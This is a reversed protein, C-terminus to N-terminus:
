PNELRPLPLDTFPLDYLLKPRTAAPAAFSPRTVRLDGQSGM